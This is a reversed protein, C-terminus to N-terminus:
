GVHVPPVLDEFSRCATPGFDIGRFRGHRDVSSRFHLRHRRGVGLSWTKLSAHYDRSTLIGAAQCDKAIHVTKYLASQFGRSSPPYVPVPILGARVCGFFACIMELGPQYALLIRDEAAFRGDKRLHGAIAKTRQIFSAYTYGEIPNGNLDIYSYLLKHPHQDGLRDLQDLISAM